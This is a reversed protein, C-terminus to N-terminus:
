FAPHWPQPPLQLAQSLKTWARDDLRARVQHMLNVFPEPPVGLRERPRAVVQPLVVPHPVLRM